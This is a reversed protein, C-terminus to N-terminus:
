YIEESPVVQPNTVFYKEMSRQLFTISLGCNILLEAVHENSLLAFFLHDVTIYEYRHKRVFAIADNFVFNLELSVM